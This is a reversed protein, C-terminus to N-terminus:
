SNSSQVTPGVPTVVEGGNQGDGAPAPAEQRDPITFRFISGGGPAQDVWIKGGHRAVVKHCITLGIGTGEYTGKKHLRRFMEFIRAQHEPKIGIGNDAVSFCWGDDNRAASIRVEPERGAEVFKLANSVLNQFVEALQVPDFTLTPMPADVSVTARAQDISARLSDIVSRVIIGSDTKIPSYEASGLTSYANLANVLAQMRTAGEVAYGIFEDADEDLQGRYRNDLLQVYRTVTRLPESLDHSAVHAFQALERNSRKLEATQRELGAKIRSLEETRKRESIDHLFANFVFGRKTRLASVAMEIPFERGDRHLATLEMRKKLVSGKGEELFRKLGELHRVRYREPIVLDVLSRGIVQARAWGFTAEAQQNWDTIVSNSDISVYAETATDIVRRLHKKSERILQEANIRETIDTSIGCVAYPEGFADLLPFKITIYTHPGDRHRIVEEIEVPEGAKLAKRDTARFADATVKPFIDVDTKGVVEEEKIRFVQEYRRNVLLFHGDLDKLSVVSTTNDLIGKLREENERVERDLDRLRDSLLGVLGGLLIFVFSRTAWGLANIEFDYMRTYLGFLCIAVGAAMLGARGGYEVAVLAIPLAYLLAVAQEVDEFFLRAAFVSAFLLLVASLILQERLVSPKRFGLWAVVANQKRLAMQSM